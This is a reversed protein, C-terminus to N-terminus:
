FERREVIKVSALLLLAALVAFGALVTWPVGEPRHTRTPMLSAAFMTHWPSYDRLPPDNMAFAVGALVGFAVMPATYEGELVSSSFVATAFFFIGGGLLMSLHMLAQNVDLPKGFTIEVLYMATWPVIAMACSEVLGTAIRTWVLRRRSVPLALTFSSAGVSKERVLGGMMLMTMGIIWLFTLLQHCNHLVFYYYSIGSIRLADKVQNHISWSALATIGLFGILFRTRTELWAKYWLM